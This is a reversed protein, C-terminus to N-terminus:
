GSTNGWEHNHEERSYELEQDLDEYFPWMSEVWNLDIRENASCGSRRPIELM